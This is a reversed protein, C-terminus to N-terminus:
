RRRAQRRARWGIGALATGLLLLTAPEPTPELVSGQFSRHDNPLTLDIVLAHPVFFCCAEPLPVEFGVGLHTYHGFPCLPCPGLDAPLLSEQHAILAGDLYATTRFFPSEPQPFPGVVSSVFLSRSKGKTM